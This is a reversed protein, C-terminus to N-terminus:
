WAVMKFRENPLDFYKCKWDSQDFFELDIWQDKKQILDKCIADFDTISVLHEVKEKMLVAEEPNFCDYEYHLVEFCEGTKDVYDLSLDIGWKPQINIVKYLLPNEDALRLLQELAKGGYGKREFILAHNIVYGSNKPSQYFWKKQLSYHRENRHVIPHISSNFKAYILEVPCLDYGNQDFLMVCDQGMFYSKHNELVKEPLPVRWESKIDFEPYLCILDNM